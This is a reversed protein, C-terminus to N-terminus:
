FKGHSFPTFIRYHFRQGQCFHPTRGPAETLTVFRNGARDEKAQTRGEELSKVREQEWLEM